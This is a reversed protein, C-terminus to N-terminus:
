AALILSNKVPDSILPWIPASSAGQAMGVASDGLDGHM